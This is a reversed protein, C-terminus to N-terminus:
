TRPLPGSPDEGDNEIWRALDRMLREIEPKGIVLTAGAALMAEVDSDPSGSFGFIAVKPFRSRIERTAEIGNMVPMDIDMLVLDPQTEEVLSIAERGNAGEGIVDVPSDDLELNILRRIEPLDDIVLM